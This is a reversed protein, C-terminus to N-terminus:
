LSSHVTLSVRDALREQCDDALTLKSTYIGEGYQPASQAGPISSYVAAVNDPDGIIPTSGTDIIVEIPTVVQANNM